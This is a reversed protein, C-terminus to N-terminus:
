RLLEQAANWVADPNNPNYPVAVNRGPAFANASKIARFHSWNSVRLDKGPPSVTLMDVGANLAKGVRLHAQVATTGNLEWDTFQVLLRNTRKGEEEQHFFGPMQNDVEALALHMIDTGENCAVSRVGPLTEGNAQVVIPKTSGWHILCSEVQRGRGAFNRLDLAASALAWSLSASPRQLVAMSSSIDVLIAIKVPPADKIERRSRVFFMPEGRQGGAKWAAMAAGDITASPTESLTRVTGETPAIRDRLFKEAARKGEREAKSPPLWSGRGRATGGTGGESSVNTSVGEEVPSPTACADAKAEAEASEAAGVREEMAALLNRLAEANGDGPGEGESQGEGEGDGEDDSEDASTGEAPAPEGEGEGAEGGAGSEQEDSQCTQGSPSPAGEAGTEPFLTELISRSKDLMTSAYGSKGDWLVMDQMQQWVFNVPAVVGHLDFWSQIADLVLDDFRRVWAPEGTYSTGTAKIRGARLAWSCLLDVIQQRPDAALHTTPVLRAAAARMTWEFGGAGVSRADRAMLGEIRPEEFVRALAWTAEAPPTGDNHLMEAKEEANSPMWAPSYRAHAVEHLAVGTLVAEQRLRFPTLTLLVRNPNRILHEPNIEFERKPFSTRAIPPADKDGPASFLLTADDWESWQRMLDALRKHADGSIHIPQTDHM